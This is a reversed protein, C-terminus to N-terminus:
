GPTEVVVIRGLISFATPLRTSFTKLPTEVVVIRGLISFAKMGCLWWWRIWTEVVVIRGLISFARKNADLGQSALTEVVVIRGLISFSVSLPQARGALVRKLWWSGDSSVSLATYTEQWTLSNLKM